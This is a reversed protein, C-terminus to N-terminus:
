PHNSQQKLLANEEPYLQEMCDPCIGHTFRAESRNSIYDEIHKWQGNEDRIKKCSCCTPLIGQLVKVEERTKELERAIIRNHEVVKPLWRWVGYALLVFGLINGVVKEFFAELPTRGIIVYRNLEPFNDTIDILSGFFILAFFRFFHSEM